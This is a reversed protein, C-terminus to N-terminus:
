RRGRAGVLLAGDPVAGALDKASKVEIEDCKVYRRIRGLYDDAIVAGRKRSVLFLLRWGACWPASAAVVEPDTILAIVRLRGGRACALADIAHVRKLLTAWDILTDHGVAM